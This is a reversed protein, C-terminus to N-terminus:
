GEERKMVQGLKGLPAEPHLPHPLQTTWLLEGWLTLIQGVLEIDAGSKMAGQNLRAELM